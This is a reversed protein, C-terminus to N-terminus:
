DEKSAGFMEAAAKAEEPDAESAEVAPAYSSLDVGSKAAGKDGKRFGLEYNSYAVTTAEEKIDMSEWFGEKDLNAFRGVKPLSSFHKAKSQRNLRVRFLLGKGMFPTIMEIFQSTINEYMKAIVADTMLMAEVEVDTKGTIDIGNFPNFSKAIEAEQMYGKLIHKLMRTLSETDRAVDAGTKTYEGLQVPWIFFDQEEEASSEDSSSSLREALSLGGGKKIGIVLTSKDNLEAKILEINEHIGVQIM